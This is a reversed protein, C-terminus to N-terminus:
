YIGFQIIWNEIYNIFHLLRVSDLENKTQDELIRINEMNLEVWDDLLCFVRKYFKIFYDLQTNVVWNELSHKFAPIDFKVTVLKYCCMMPNIKVQWGTTLPGRGTKKSQYMAPEFTTNEHEKPLKESGIDIYKVIRKELAHPELGFVNNHEGLDDDVHQTEVIISFREGLFSNRIITKCYPYANWAEEELLLAKTPALAKIIAPCRGAIHYIKSTYQGTTKRVTDQYPENKLIEVAVSGDSEEKSFHAVTYLQGV